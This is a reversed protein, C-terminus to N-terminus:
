NAVIYLMCVKSIYSWLVITFYFLISLLIFYVAFNYWSVSEPRLKCILLYHVTVAVLSISCFFKMYISPYLIFSPIFIILCITLEVSFLSGLQDRLKKEMQYYTYQDETSSDNSDERKTVITVVTPAM